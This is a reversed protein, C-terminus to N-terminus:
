TGGNENDLYWDDVVYLTEDFDEPPYTRQSAWDCIWDYDRFVHVIGGRQEVSKLDDSWQWVVSTVDVSCM